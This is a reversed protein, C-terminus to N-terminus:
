KGFLGKAANLANGIGGEGGGILGAIQSIDFGKDEESSSQFKDKLSKILEPATNQAQEQAEEATAGNNQLVGALKEKVNEFIPNSAIDGDDGSFIKQIGEINGGGVQSTITEWIASTGAEGAEAAQEGSLKNNISESIKQTVLNKIIDIM